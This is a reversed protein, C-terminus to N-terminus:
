NIVVEASAAHGVGGAAFDALSTISEDSASNDGAIYVYKGAVLDKARRFAQVLTKTYTLSKIHSLTVKHLKIYTWTVKYELLIGSSEWM